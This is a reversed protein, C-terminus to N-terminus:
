DEDAPKLLQPALGMLAGFPVLLMCLWNGTMISFPVGIIAGAIAGFFMGQKARPELRM